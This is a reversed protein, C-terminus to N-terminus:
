KKIYIKIEKYHGARIKLALNESVFYNDIDITEKGDFLEYRYIKGSDYTDVMDRNIYTIMTKGIFKFSVTKDEKFYEKPLKPNPEFILKGDMMKFPNSGTMMHAWIDVVEITSGSLRPLFGKGHVKKDPNGSTAIFSSNELPNRGYVEPDMFCVLNTKTEKFFEEYLGAKLLGLLYKYTMHLFDSERELWGKTFARIRGIEYGEADLSESTKYIRLDPDYIGSKKIKSYMNKLEHKDFDIKLLRAPAELFKPLYRRQFNKAKALPLNYNGYVLKGNNEVKDFDVVDHVIFTPIIQDNDNFVRVLKEKIFANINELYVKLDAPKLGRYDSKLGFRVNNRYEERIGVRDFYGPLNRLKDFMVYIDVPLIVQKEPLHTLLYDIIRKTEITESIGSGFLGPLGNMADNWGPKNAEMEIGIGDFDLQSHKNLVLLLLKTFLNTKFVNGGLKVWNSGYQNLGLRNVKENDFHLLSGFQRIEGDENIVTKDAKPLVTVPSDFTLIDNEAYLLELIKDPYIAEFSEVLDLIYSFHDIWYGEGFAAQIKSSSNNIVDELYTSESSKSEINNDHVFNVLGGPTFEYKLFKNLKQKENRFHKEILKSRLSDDAISFTMGGISLPNYGDLQILSAFYKVNFSGVEPHIFSDLRRNQCVDRFNGSGQSYYEPALIFFNYDRELDGHKRSYLHYITNGIKYPYGGRLINDLYNQKVYEDFISFATSTSVEDTIEDIVKKAEIEKKNIYDPDMAKEIFGYLYEKNHAFGSIIGLDITKGSGLNRKVPIYGCPVKNVTVQEQALLDDLTKEQFNIADEKSSDYGFIMEQDVIPKILEKDIYGFLYNGSEIEKVESEDGTSSRLNYFAINKELEEVDMWSTLLNSISKFEQNKVGSPLIETIGDLMEIELSKDSINKVEVKRVLGGINENPLGFYKIKVSIGLKPNIEEISFDSRTIKLYHELNNKVVFPEYYEGNVKIFTRFGIQGVTEYAKNAPTFEMIPHNKDQLGYGSIGQGRNVYFMWLPIGKKGAVGPLFNSFTPKKLYNKIVFVDNEFYYDSM